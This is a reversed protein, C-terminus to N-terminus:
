PRGSCPMKYSLQLSFIMKPRYHATGSFLACVGSFHLLYSPFIMAPETL